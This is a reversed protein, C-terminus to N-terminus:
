NIIKLLFQTLHRSHVTTYAGPFSSQVVTM